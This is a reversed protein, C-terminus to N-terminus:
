AVKKLFNPKHRPRNRLVNEVHSREFLLARGGKMDPILLGKKKWAKLSTQSITYEEAIEAYTLHSKRSPIERGMIEEEALMVHKMLERLETMWTDDVGSLTSTLMEQVTEIILSKMMEKMERM